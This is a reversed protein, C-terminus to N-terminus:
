ATSDNVFQCVLDLYGDPAGEPYTFDGSVDEVSCQPAGNGKVRVDLGAFHLTSVDIQAIDFDARGLVAVPIVGHSKINFCNPYSGPKIDITIPKLVPAAITLNDIVWSHRLPIPETGITLSKIGRDDTFGLFFTEPGFFGIDAPVIVQDVTGDTFEVLVTGDAVTDDPIVDGIASHRSTHLVIDVAIGFVGGGVTLSTNDFTLRFNGNCGACYNTGDGHIYVDGVINLDQFSLSEYSTEGLVASMEANTLTVWQPPYGSYDDTISAGVAGLFSARDTYYTPVAQAIAANLVLALGFLLTCWFMLGEKVLIMRLMLMSFRKFM